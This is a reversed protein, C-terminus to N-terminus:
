RLVEWGTRDPLNTDLLLLLDPREVAVASVAAEASDAERV